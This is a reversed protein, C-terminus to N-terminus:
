TISPRVPQPGLRKHRSKRDSPRLDAGDRRAQVDVNMERLQLTIRKAADVILNVLYRIRKSDRFRGIPGVVVVAAALKGQPGFVPASIGAADVLYEGLSILYGRERIEPLSRTLERKNVITTRSFREFKTNKIYEDIWEQPQYALLLRRFGCNLGVPVDSRDIIKLPHPGYARDLFVPNQGRLASLIVDEGTSAALDEIIPRAIEVLSRLVPDTALTRLHSGLQLARTREDREVFDNAILADIIRKTTSLPFGVDKTLATLTLGKASAVADLIDVARDLVQIASRRQPRRAMQRASPARSVAQRVAM